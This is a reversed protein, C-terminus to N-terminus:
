TSKRRSTSGRKKAFYENDRNVNHEGNVVRRVAEVFLARAQEVQAKNTLNLAVPLTRWTLHSADDLLDSDSDESLAIAVEISKTHPYLAAVMEEGVQYGVYITKFYSQCGLDTLIKDVEISLSRARDNTHNLFDM